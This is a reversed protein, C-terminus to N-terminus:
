GWPIGVRGRYKYPYTRTVQLSSIEASSEGDKSPVAVLGVFGPSYQDGWAQHSKESVEPTVHGESGM